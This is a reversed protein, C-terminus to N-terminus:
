ALADMRELIAAVTAAMPERWDPRALGVLRDFKTCDLLSNLPRIVSLPYDGSSIAQISREKYGKKVMQALIYCAIAYRSAEGRATFHYTGWEMAGANIRATIAAIARAVEAVHTPAGIQDNVVRLPCGELAARTIAHVFSPGDAGYLWAVRLIVHQRHERRVALEGEAKSAGYISLPSLPADEGYPIAALGDFVYDTSLHVLPVGLRACTAALLTPGDRNVAFAQEAEVEARDVATYAAANIVLSCCSGSLVQSVQDARTIDLTDRGVGVVTVGRPFAGALLTRGLQGGAGVILVRMWM